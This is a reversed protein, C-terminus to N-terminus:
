DKEMLARIAKLMRKKAQSLLPRISPEGYGTVKAIERHSAQEVYALWLLQRDQPRLRALARDALQKQAFQYSSDSVSPEVVPMQGVRKARRYHDHALNTAIRFLYHRRYAQDPENQAKSTLLKMYAEQMLEDALAPNELVSQLYAWLSRATSGYFTAFEEQDM